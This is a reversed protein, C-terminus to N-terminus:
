PHQRSLSSNHVSQTLM